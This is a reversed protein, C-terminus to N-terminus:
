AAHRGEAHRDPQDSRVDHRAHTIKRRLALRERRQRRAADRDRERRALASRIAADDLNGLAVQRRMRDRLYEITLLFAIVLLAWITWAGLAELKTNTTLSFTVTLVAPVLLGVVLAGRKLRPYVDAFWAARRAIAERYEARDSLVRIAEGVPFEHGRIRVPEGVIVDGQAIERAFLRNVNAMWPRVGLGLAFSLVAYLLLVLMQHAWHGDYFGGITERMAAISHSFPFFPYLARFFGPMMEIPYLGSAGPIQVVILIVCLAKGVHLFTTSLAYTIAIDVLATVVGTFVFMAASATKVGIVLDGITVVLGQGIAVLALFLWRGLYGQTPTLGGDIGDEDAELKFIVVLMFAGAWLALSTFLPAMGAGYSNVAYMTHTNLVTPSGLFDAIRKADLHDQGILQEIANASGLATLDTVITTLRHEVTALSDGTRTLATRATAATQDLQTLVTGTQDLLTSQATLSSGLTAATTALGALGSDLRPLSTGVLQGQATNVTALTHQVATNATTSLKCTSTATAGLDRNLTTLDKLTTGLTANATSLSDIASNLGSLGPNSGTLQQLETLIADITANASNLPALSQDVRESAATLTGTIGSVASNAQAMAQSALGSGQALTGSASAALDTVTTRTGTLLKSADTLTSNAQGTLTRVTGLTTRAKRTQDPVDALTTDLDSIASRVRSVDQTVTDLTGSVKALATDGAAGLQDAAQNVTRTIVNGVTSVFTDNIERDVTGAAADTIKPSIPSVKENVYYELAPRTSGGTIMTSLSESFNKPIVIAAYSRGSEVDDIANATSTFRWDLDRNAKLSTVVERGLNLNGMLTNQAGNDANAVSVQVNGTNGYPDWFGLINVWAYTAPLVMLGITIVWAVPVRLLRKLDRTFVRFIQHM